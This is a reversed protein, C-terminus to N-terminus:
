RIWAPKKWQVAEETYYDRVAKIAGFFPRSRAVTDTQDHQRYWYPPAHSEVHILHGAEGKAALMISVLITDPAGVASEVPFGGNHRWLAKTVMAANCALRQQRGDSYQVDLYYYGLPDQHDEYTKLCDELCWPELRDDSGLMLVLDHRALGVGFNFAHAVGSLWPTKWLTIPFPWQRGIMEIIGQTPDKLSHFSLGSGSSHELEAIIADFLSRSCSSQSASFDSVDVGALLQAQDDIILVEDPPCTQRRLSELCEGLYERYAPNPGVPVVVTIPNM